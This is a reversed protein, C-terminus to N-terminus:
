RCSPKKNGCTSAPVLSLASPIKL